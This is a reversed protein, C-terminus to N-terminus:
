KVLEIDVKECIGNKLPRFVAIWQEDRDALTRTVTKAGTEDTAESEALLYAADSLLTFQEPLDEPTFTQADLLGNEADFQVLGIREPAEIEKFRIKVANERETKDGNVATDTRNSKIEQTMEGTGPGMGLGEAPEAYVAGSKTQYVPNMYFVQDATNRAFYVTGELSVSDEGGDSGAINLHSDSIGPGTTSAIYGETDDDERIMPAFFPIGDVGEFVYEKVYKDEDKLTAYIRGRATTGAALAEELSDYFVFEEAGADTRLYETTILVGILDGTEAEASAAPKILGAAGAGFAALMACVLIIVLVKIKM